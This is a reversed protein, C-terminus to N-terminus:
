LRLEARVEPTIDADEPFHVMPRALMQRVASSSDNATLEEDEGVSAIAYDYGLDEAVAQAASRALDFADILQRGLMQDLERAAERQLNTLQQGLQQYRLQDQMVGPDEPNPNQGEYRRVIEGMANQIEEFRERHEEELRQREPLYRESALLENVIVPIAVVAIPHEPEARVAMGRASASPQYALFVCLGALLAIATWGAARFSVSRPNSCSPDTNMPLAM